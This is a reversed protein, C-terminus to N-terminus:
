EDQEGQRKNHLIMIGWIFCVLLSGIGFGLMICDNCTEILAM